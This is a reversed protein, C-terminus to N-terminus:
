ASRPMHLAALTRPKGGIPKPAADGRRQQKPSPGATAEVLLAIDDHHVRRVVKSPDTIWAAKARTDPSLRFYEETDPLKVPRYTQVVTGATLSRITDCHRVVRQQLGIMQLMEAQFIPDHCRGMLRGIRFITQGLLAVAGIVNLAGLTPNRQRHSRARRCNRPVARRDEVIDQGKSV